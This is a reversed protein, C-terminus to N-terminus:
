LGELHQEKHALRTWLSSLTVKSSLAPDPTYRQREVEGQMSPVNLPPVNATQGAQRAGCHHLELSELMVEGDSYIQSSFWATPAKRPIIKPGHCM